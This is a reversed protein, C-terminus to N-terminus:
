FKDGMEEGMEDDIEVISDPPLFTDEYPILPPEGTIVFKEGKEFRYNQIITLLEYSYDQPCTLSVLKFFFQVNEEYIRALYELSNLKKDMFDLAMIDLISESHPMWIVPESSYHSIRHFFIPEKDFLHPVKTIGHIAFKLTENLEEKQEEISGDIPEYSPEDIFPYVGDFAFGSPNTRKSHTKRFAM